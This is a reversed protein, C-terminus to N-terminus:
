HAQPLSKAIQKSWQKQDQMRGFFNKKESILNAPKGILGTM